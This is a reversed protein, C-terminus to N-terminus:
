DLLVLIEQRHIVIPVLPRHVLDMMEQFVILEVNLKTVLAFVMLVYVVLEMETKIVIPILLVGAAV